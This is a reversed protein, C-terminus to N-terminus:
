HLSMFQANCNAACSSVQAEDKGMVDDNNHICGLLCAIGANIRGQLTEMCFHLGDYTIQNKECQINSEEQDGTRTPRNACVLPISKNFKDM